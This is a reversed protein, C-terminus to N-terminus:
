SEPHRRTRARGARRRRALGCASGPHTEPTSLRRWGPMRPARDPGRQRPAASWQARNARAQRESRTWECRKPLGVRRSRESCGRRDRVVPEPWPQHNDHTPRGGARGSLVNPRLSRERRGGDPQGCRPGVASARTWRGPAHGHDPLVATVGGAPFVACTRRRSAGHQQGLVLGQVAGM